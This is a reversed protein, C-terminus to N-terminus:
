ENKGKGQDAIKIWNNGEDHSLYIDKKTTAFVMEIAMIPNQAMFTIADDDDLKPIPITNMSKTEIDVVQLVPKQNYGGVMLKGENDFYLATVQLDSVIKEFRKGYDRSIYAGTQTGLAIINEKVQHVALAAPEGEVGRSESKTWTKTEDLSYFLGLSTMKSNPAPNFVYIAHTKYGVSMDHFDTEGELALKLITKGEDNSKIIGIPNSMSSGPGPHGSSYFGDDVASFGMYDNKDGPPVSWSGGEYMRIGDHAPILLKNGDPSYGLGHIHHLTINSAGGGLLSIGGLILSGLLFVIYLWKYRIAWKTLKSRIERDVQKKVNTLKNAKNNAKFHLVLFLVFLGITGIMFYNMLNGSSEAQHEEATGHALAQSTAFFLGFLLGVVMKKM